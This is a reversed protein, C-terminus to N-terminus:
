PPVNGGIPKTQMLILFNGSATQNERPILMKRSTLFNGQRFSIHGSICATVFIAFIQWFRRIRWASKTKIFKVLVRWFRRIWSCERVKVFNRWTAMKAMAYVAPCLHDLNRKPIIFYNGMLKAQKRLIFFPKRMCVRTVLILLNVKKM